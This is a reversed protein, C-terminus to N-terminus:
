RTSSSTPRARPRLARHRHRPHPPRGAAEVRRRPGPGGRRHAPLHRGRRVRQCLTFVRDLRSGPRTATRSTPRTSCRGAASTSSGPRSSRRSPPTSCSPRRRGPDRLPLGARGHRATGDRGVYDVCVDLVHAGESLQERAMQVCTDWDGDLMAERFKKSGNANTREGIILFSTDQEFPVHSYISTAGPEHVPTRAAPTSTGASRSSGSSTSPRRHRLLRRRGPRRARHRLAQPARGAPRADPRLAM